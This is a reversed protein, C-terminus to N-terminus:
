RWGGLLTFAAWIGPQALDGGAAILKLQAERLAEAKGLGGRYGSYFGKMLELTGLDNVQWLSALASQAGSQVAAGALGMSAQDDGVATECASLVLLDLEDGRARNAMILGRLDAMPIAEGDAVIFSRDSRGNFAAHTAVHLVDIKGNALAAQLDSKHFDAIVRSNRGGGGGVGAAVQAEEATGDLKAFYGAPLVVEKQLSAAVVSLPHEGRDRGPQSYTLAPAVSIRTRAVLFRDKGDLLAAFPLARLPGDPIIVLAGDPRLRDEIPQILLQYLRRAPARWAENPEGSTSNVLEAVLAAVTARDATHNAPLRRYQTRGTGGQAYILEIRDPLLIPYLLIEDPRLESPQVAERPPVCDAGLASQVEAQRYTEVIQQALAIRLDEGGADTSALQIEVAQEFVPQMRLVFNSEETVPDVLPLFPRVAELARYAAVSHEARRAPEAQALWLLWDAQRLPQPRQSERYVAQRLLAQAAARDGRALALRGQLADAYAEGALGGGATARMAAVAHDLRPDGAGGADIATECLRGLLETRLAPDRIAAAQPLADLAASLAGARRSAVEGQASDGATLLIRSLRLGSLAALEADGATRARLNACALATQIVEPSPRALLSPESLSECSGVAVAIAPIKTPAPKAGGGGRRDAIVPGGVTALALRYSALAALGPDHAQEAASIAAMLYGQAQFQSGSRAVRMSEGAASCYAAVASARAADDGGSAVALVELAEDGRRMDAGRRALLTEANRTAQELAANPLEPKAAGLGCIM